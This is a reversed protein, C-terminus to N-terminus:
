RKSEREGERGKGKRGKGKRGEWGEDVGSMMNEGGFSLPNREGGSEM